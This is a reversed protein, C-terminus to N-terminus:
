APAVPPLRIEAGDTRFIAGEIQEGSALLEGRKRQALRVALRLCVCEEGQAERIGVSHEPLTNWLMKCRVIPADKDLSKGARLWRGILDLRTRLQTGTEFVRLRISHEREDSVIQELVRTLGHATLIAADRLRSQGWHEHRENDFRVQLGYGSGLNGTSAAIYVDIVPTQRSTPM